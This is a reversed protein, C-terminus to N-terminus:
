DEMLLASLWWTSYNKFNIEKFEALRIKNSNLQKLLLLAFILQCMKRELPNSLRMAKLEIRIILLLKRKRIWLLSLGVGSFFKAMKRAVLSISKIMHFALKSSCIRMRIGRININLHVTKQTLLEWDIIVLLSWFKLKLWSLFQLYKEVQLSSVMDIKWM